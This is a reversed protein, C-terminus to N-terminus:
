LGFGMQYGTTLDVDATSSPDVSARTGKPANKIDITIKAAQKLVEPGIFGGAGGSSLGRGRADRVSDIGRQVADMPTVYDEDYRHDIMGETGTGGRQQQIRAIKSALGEHGIVKEGYHSIAIGAAFPLVVSGLVSAGGGAAAAGGASSAAGGAAGG